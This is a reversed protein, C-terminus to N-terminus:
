AVGSKPAMAALKADLRAKADCAWGQWRPISTNVQGRYVAEPTVVDGGAAPKLAWHPRLTNYRDRFVALKSRCDAPCEYLNWYVEEQKLVAHFRELLGLQQPTRYRIRVHIIGLDHLHRGFARATFSVGNDTVLTPPRPLPGGRVREAEARALDLGAKVEAASFSDTLHCALLYRSYYDIVTVAYWWGHGPIEIYTVDAQWLQDPGSPLLEYLKRAQHLEAAQPRRLRLLGHKRYLRYVVTNAVAVGLSRLTVAVRKYGWWPWEYAGLVVIEEIDAEVSRATPGPARRPGYLRQRYWASAPWGLHDLIETMRLRREEAALAKM